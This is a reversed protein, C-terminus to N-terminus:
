WGHSEESKLTTYWCLVDITHKCLALDSALAFNSLCNNKKEFRQLVDNRKQLAVSVM